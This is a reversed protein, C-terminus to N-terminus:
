GNAKEQALFSMKLCCADFFGDVTKYLQTKKGRQISVLFRGNPKLYVCSIGSKNSSFLNKNLGQQRPTAWRCNGPEYNGNTDIRDISTGEPRDGMDRLFNEFSMWHDSFTIGVGGYRYYISCKKNTCRDKASAWSKYTRSRSMGHTRNKSEFVLCGCSRTHGSKVYRKRAVTERGCQCLYRGLLRGDATRGAGCILTLRCEGM